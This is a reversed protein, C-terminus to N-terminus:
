AAGHLVAVPHSPCMCAEKMSAYLRIYRLRTDRFDLPEAKTTGALPALVAGHGVPGPVSTFLLLTSM